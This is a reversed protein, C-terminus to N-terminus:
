SDQFLDAVVKHKHYVTQSMRQQESQYCDWTHSMIQMFDDKPMQVSQLKEIVLAIMTSFYINKNLKSDDMQQRISKKFARVLEEEQPDAHHYEMYDYALKDM